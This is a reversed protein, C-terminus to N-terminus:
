VRAPGPQPVIYLATRGQVLRAKCEAETHVEVNFGDSKLTERISEAGAGDQVDVAPRQPEKGAFAIGLVAALLLPFGYVWFLVEPERYFERIRALVLQAFRRWRPPVM